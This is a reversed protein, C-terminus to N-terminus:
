AIESDSLMKAFQGEPIIKVGYNLATALKKRGPSKGVILYDTQRGVSDGVIAGLITLLENIDKRSMDNVTGTVVVKTNSFPNGDTGANAAVRIFTIEKLVPRWLKGEMEDAYWNYINRNLAESVDAIHFFCFVDKIAKEFDSWSGCFYEDIARASVPGM